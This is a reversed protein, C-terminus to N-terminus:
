RDLLHAAEGSARLGPRGGDDPGEEILGVGLVEAGLDVRSAMVLGAAQEQVAGDFHEWEPGGHGRGGPGLLRTITSVDVSFRAAFQRRSGERNDVANLIRERLDTSLPKM